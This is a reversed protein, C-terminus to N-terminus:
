AGQLAVADDASSYEKRVAPNEGSKVAM